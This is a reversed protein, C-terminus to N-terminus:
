GGRGTRLSEILTRERVRRRLDRAAAPAWGTVAYRLSGSWEETAVAQALPSRFATLGDLALSGAARDALHVQGLATLHVADPMVLRWGGLGETSVATAGVSRAVRRIAANAQMVSGAARPRGLDPPIAVLVVHDCERELRRALLTLTREYAEVDFDAARVDNVGGYLCGLEYPGRLRVTQEDLMDSAAAGDRALNTYPLELAEALWLAWSRCDVGLMPQGAGRTISDGVAVLGRRCPRHPGAAM